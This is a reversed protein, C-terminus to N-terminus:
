QEGRQDGPGQRPIMGAQAQPMGGQTATGPMMPQQGQLNPPPGNPLQEMQEPTGQVNAMTEQSQSIKEIAKMAVLELIREKMIDKNMQKPNEIQMLNRQAWTKSALGKDIAMGAVNANQLKDQPLDIELEVNIEFIEPVESPKLAIGPCDQKGDRYMKLVIEMTNAIAKAGMLKVPILPIRGSQSLLATESFTSNRGISQGLATRYMTSEEMKREAIEIGAQLAPDIIGKNLIPEYSDGYPVSVISNNKEDIILQKNGDQNGPGLKHVHTPNLAWRNLNTYLATMNTNQREWLGSKSMGYLLPNHSKDGEEFLSSGDGVIVTIPIYALKRKQAHVVKGGVWVIYYDLDTWMDLQVTDSPKKDGMEVHDYERAAAAFTTEVSRYYGTMGINDYMPYGNKPHWVNVVCPSLKAAEEIRTRKNGKLTKAYQTLSSVAIHTEDYLLLSKVIDYHPPKQRQMGARNWILKVAKEMAETQTEDEGAMTIDWVPDMTTLLRHAGNVYNRGDPSITVKIDEEKSKVSWDFFYPKDMEDFLDNRLSAASKLSEGLSRSTDIVDTPLKIVNNTDESM